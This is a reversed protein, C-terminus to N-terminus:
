IDPIVKISRFPFTGTGAGVRHQMQVNFTNGATLGSVHAFSGKAQAVTGNHLIMDDDSPAYVQTGAGLTAGTGVRVATKVDNAGSNFGAAHFLITVSGSPPAVFAVGLATGTGATGAVYSTSTTSVNGSQKAAATATAVVHDGSLAM